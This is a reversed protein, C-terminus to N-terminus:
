YERRDSEFLGFSSARTGYSTGLLVSSSRNVTLLGSLACQCHPELVIWPGGFFVLLQKGGHRVWCVCRVADQYVEGLKRRWRLDQDILAEVLGLTLPQRTRRQEVVLRARVQGVRGRGVRGM